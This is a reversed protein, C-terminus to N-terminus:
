FEIAMKLKARHRSFEALNLSNSGGNEMGSIQTNWAATMFAKRTMQVYLTPGIFVADGTYNNPGISDYHRLYWLEAGVTVTPVVRYALAASGGWTSENTWVGDARTKEPEYLLNIGLFLRNEILATDFALKTEFEYNTVGSGSTEDIRRWVPEFSLTIGVPSSPGRDLLLYRFEGFMGGFAAQKRDDLGTVNQINHTAVLAGFELQIFQNPTHEFELKSETANYKGDRKGFRGITEISVEKEGELGIGSGETFGFIYKTEIESFANDQAHSQQAGVGSMLVAFAFLATRYKTLISSAAIHVRCREPMKGTGILSFTQV